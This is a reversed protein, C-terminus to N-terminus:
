LALCERLGFHVLKNCGHLLEGILTHGGQRRCTSVRHVLYVEHRRGIGLRLIHLILIDGDGHGVLARSGVAPLLNARGGNVETTVRGSLLHVRGDGVGDSRSQGVVVGLTLRHRTGLDLGSDTSGKSRVRGGALHVGGDAIGDVRCQSRVAGGRLHGCGDCRSDGVVVRLGLHICEDGVEDRFRHVVKHVVIQLAVCVSLCLHLLEDVRNLLEGILAHCLQRRCRSVSHVLYVEHRRGIRLRLIHLILIDSDGHGVLTRGGVTPLLYSRGGNVETTVVGACLCVRCDAIRQVRSQCRVAGCRLHGCGDGGGDGVIVGLGLHICEDGVEDRLRHVIQHIVVQLAVGVGLCLHLLEDVRHLLEGVYAHCLQRRCRSVRHVLYVEHGRGIRLRLIHLILIDGDGHGVM